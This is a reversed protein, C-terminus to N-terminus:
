EVEIGPLLLDLSSANADWSSHFSPNDEYESTIVASLPYDAGVGIGVM